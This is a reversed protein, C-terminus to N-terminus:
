HACTVIIRIREKSIHHDQDLSSLTHQLHIHCVYRQAEFSTNSLSLSLHKWHNLLSFNFEVSTMGEQMSEFMFDLNFETCRPFVLLKIVIALSPFIGIFLTIIFLHQSSFLSYMHLDIPETSIMQMMKERMFAILNRCKVPNIQHINMNYLVVNLVSAFGILEGGMDYLM